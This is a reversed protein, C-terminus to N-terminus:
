GAPREEEPAVSLVMDIPLVIQFESGEGPESEVELRGGHATVIDRAITLGLGLGQPFREQREGRYFPEFIRAQESRSIGPGTDGVKIWVTEANAGASVKVLGGAPTHKIANSLLNGVAQGLREPDAALVPLAEPVESEWTLGAQQVAERWPPLLTALWDALSTPRPEIAATDLVQGHLQSLDDLLTQLTRLETEMGALLEQRLEASEDAGRLLAHTASRLAGLPRGLEHVLNALLRRRTEELFALRTGLHNVAEALRKLEAPGEEPVPEAAGPPGAAITEVMETTQRLPRELRLALVLGVLTGLVLEGALVALVMQRLEQFRESVAALQRTAHIIGVVQQAENTVPILVVAGPDQSQLGYIRRVTDHGSLARQVDDPDIGLDTRDPGSEALVRGDSSLIMVELQSGATMEALYLQATRQDRWVGPRSDAARAILQAQATLTDSLDVLLVQTELFYILGIAALPVVILLPLIHSLILRSRLSRM